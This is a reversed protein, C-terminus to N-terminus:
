HKYANNLYLTRSVVMCQKEQQQKICVKVIYVQHTEYESHLHPHDSEQSIPNSSHVVM